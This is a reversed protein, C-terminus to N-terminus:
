SAWIDHMWLFYIFIITQTAIRKILPDILTVTESM